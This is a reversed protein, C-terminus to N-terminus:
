FTYQLGTIVEFVKLDYTGALNIPTGTRGFPDQEPLGARDYSQAAVTRTPANIYKWITSFKVRGKALSGGLQFVNRTTGDPILPTITDDPIPTPDHYYGGSLMADLGKIQGLAYRAGVSVRVVDTWNEHLMDDLSDGFASPVAGVRRLKLTIVDLASQQTWDVDAAVLMKESLQYALGGGINMPLPIKTSVVYNAPIVAGGWYGVARASDIRTAQGALILGHMVSAFEAAQAESRPFYGTLTGSGSIDLDGYFRASAGVRLKESAKWLAGVNGGFGFGTGSVNVDIPLFEYPGTILPTFLPNQAQLGNPQLSVQHLSVDAYNVSVGAGVSLAPSVRYAVTPHVDVVKLDSESDFEPYAVADNYGPPLNYLDWKTGLGFPAFVAIGYALREDGGRGFGNVGPFALVQKNQYVPRTAYGHLLNPTVTLDPLVATGTASIQSGPLQVLGAPNWFAASWDDAVAHFAGAMGAADTGPYLALGSARAVEAGGFAASAMVMWSVVRGTLRM